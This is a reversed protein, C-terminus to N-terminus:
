PTLSEAYQIVKKPSLIESFEIVPGELAEKTSKTTRRKRSVAILWNGPGYKQLLLIRKKLQDARWFGMIELHLEEKGRRLTYDPMLVARGALNLPEKGDSLTWDTKLTDFREKFWQQERSVYSGQDRYHSCLPTTSDLTLTKRIKRRTWQVTAHLQWPVTQLLLTPFFNALQLGYRSSQTFLSTPGDLVLVLNGDKETFHHILQFFKVSRILQRVRPPTPQEMEITLRDARLLLAQVIAVNYRHLLWTEDPIDVSQIRHSQKLDAYMAKSLGEPSVGLSDAVQHLITAATPRQLPGPELALPGSAASATFLAARVEKPDLPAESEFACRDFLVKAIGRLTKHDRRDSLLVDIDALLDARTARNEVANNAIQLLDATVAVLSKKTPDIFSPRLEKGKVSARILDATLV